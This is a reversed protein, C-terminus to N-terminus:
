ITNDYKKHCSRCRPVYMSIHRKYLHNVNSWDRAQKGCDICKYNKASGKKRRLWQHLGSYKVNDGKWMGSKANSCGLGIKDKTEQIHKGWKNEKGYMPHNKGSNKLRHKNTQKYGKKPM